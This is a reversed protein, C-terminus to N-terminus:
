SAKAREFQRVVEELSDGGKLASIVAVSSAGAGFVKGANEITIGGIGVVPLASLKSIEALKEIGVTPAHGSKTPSNFVPGVGIYDLVDVPAALAQELNHTSLGIIATDGLLKRAVLPSADSQGLHVGDACSFKCIEPSDNIIIWSKQEPYKEDRLAVASNAIRIVEIQQLAKARIQIIQVKAELLKAIQELASAYQEVDVIAYLPPLIFEKM